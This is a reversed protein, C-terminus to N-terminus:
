LWIANTGLKAVFLPLYLHVVCAPSKVTDMVWRVKPDFIDMEEEEGLNETSEAM